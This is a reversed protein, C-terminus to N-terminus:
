WPKYLQLAKALVRAITTKGIGRTGSLLYSQALRKTAISNKLSRIVHGQGLVDDFNSPRWKRALVQYSM